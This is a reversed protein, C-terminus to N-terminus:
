QDAIEPADLGPVFTGVEAFLQNRVNSGSPIYLLLRGPGAKQPM